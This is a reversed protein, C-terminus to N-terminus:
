STRLHWEASAPGGVGGFVAGPTMFPKVPVSATRTPPFLSEFPPTKTLRDVEERFFLDAALM